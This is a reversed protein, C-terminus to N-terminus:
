TIPKGPARLLCSSMHVTAGSTWAVTNFKIDATSEEDGVEADWAASGDSKCIRAWAVEGDADVSVDDSITNATAEGGSCNPFATAAFGCTALLTQTTIGVGPHAPRPGTYFKIVGGNAHAAWSNGLSNRISEEITVVM